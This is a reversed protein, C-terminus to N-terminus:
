HSFLIFISKGGETELNIESPLDTNSGINNSRPSGYSNSLPVESPLYWLKGAYSRLGILRALSWITFRQGGLMRLKESEIDIDSILGWGVSLFSFMIQATTEVRVLDMSCYNNKVLALISPLVSPNYPESCHHAISRALGNGSGGPIVGIPLSRIVESWDWREFIGNLVEFVIGDGGM